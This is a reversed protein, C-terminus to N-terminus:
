HQGSGVDRGLLQEGQVLVVAVETRDQRRQAGEALLDVPGFHATTGSAPREGLGHQEEELSQPDDLRGNTVPSRRARSGSTPPAPLGAAGSMGLAREALALAADTAIVHPLWTHIAADPSGTCM